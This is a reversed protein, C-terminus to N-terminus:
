SVLSFSAVFLITFVSAQNIGGVNDAGGGGGSKPQNGIWSETPSLLLLRLSPVPAWDSPCGALYCHGMGM